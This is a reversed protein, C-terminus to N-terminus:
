ARSAVRLSPAAKDIAQHHFSNVSLRRAGLAAALRSDADVSVDHVRRERAWDGDHAIADPREAPIDQILSGGLAVNVLQIGRCIALVPMRRARAAATLALELGDRD